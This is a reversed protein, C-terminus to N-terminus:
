AAAGIYEVIIPHTVDTGGSPDSAYSAPTLAAASGNRFFIKQTGPDTINIVGFGVIGFTTANTSNFRVGYGRAFNASGSRAYIIGQVAAAGTDVAGLCEFTVRYVGAVPVTIENSALAWGAAPYQNLLAIPMTASPPSATSTFHFNAIRATGLFTDAAARISSEASVADAIQEEVWAKPTVHDDTLPNLVCIGQGGIELPLNPTYVGGNQGDLAHSLNEDLQEFEEPEVVSNPAWLGPSRLRAFSM